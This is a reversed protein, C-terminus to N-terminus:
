EDDNCLWHRLFWINPIPMKGSRRKLFGHSVASVTGVFNSVFFSIVLFLLLDAPGRFPFENFFLFVSGSIVLLNGVAYPRVWGRGYITAVVISAAFGVFFVSFALAPIVPAVMSAMLICFGTVAILAARLGFQRWSLKMGAPKTPVFTPADTPFSYPEAQQSM